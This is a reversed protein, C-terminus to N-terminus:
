KALWFVTLKNIQKKTQTYVLLELRASSSVNELIALNGYLGMCINIRCLGKTWLFCIDSCYQSNPIEGIIKFIKSIGSRSFNRCNSQSLSHYKLKFPCLWSICMRVAYWKKALKCIVFVRADSIDLCVKHLQVLQLDIDLNFVTLRILASIKKKYAM